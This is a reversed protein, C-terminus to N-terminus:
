VNKQSETKITSIINHLFYIDEKTLAMFECGAYHLGNKKSIWKVELMMERTEDDSILNFVLLSGINVSRSCQVGLGSYSINEVQIRIPAKNEAEASTEINKFCLMNQTYEFRERIRNNDINITDDYLM